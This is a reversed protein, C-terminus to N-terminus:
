RLPVVDKSPTLFSLLKQRGRLSVNKTVFKLKLFARKQSIQSCLNCFIPYIRLSIKFFELGLKFQNKLGELVWIKLSWYLLNVNVTIYNRGIKKIPLWNSDTSLSTFIHITEQFQSLANSWAGPIPQCLFFRYSLHMYPLSQIVMRESIGNVTVELHWEIDPYNLIYFLKTDEICHLLM